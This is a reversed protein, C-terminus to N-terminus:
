EKIFKSTYSRGGTNVRYLYIGNSLDSISIDVQNIGSTANDLQRSEIQRGLLDTITLTIESDFKLDVVITILDNAPNPFAKISKVSEIKSLASPDAYNLECSDTNFGNTSLVTSIDMGYYVASNLTVSTQIGAAASRTGVADDTQYYMHLKNDTGVHKILSPFVDEGFRTGKFIDTSDFNDRYGDIQSAVNIPYSWSAGGDTSYLLYIDRIHISDGQVNLRFFDYTDEVISSAVVFINGNADVACAAGRTAGNDIGYAGTQADALFYDLENNCDIDLLIDAISVPRSGLMSENWYMIGSSAARGSWTLTQDWSQEIAGSFIHMQGSNDLVINPDDGPHFIRTNGTTSDVYGQGNATDLERRDAVPFFTWNSGGDISKWANM